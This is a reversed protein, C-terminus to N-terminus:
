NRTGAQVLLRNNIIPGASPACLIRIGTPEHLFVNM